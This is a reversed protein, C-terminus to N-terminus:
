LLDRVRALQFICTTRMGYTVEHMYTTSHSPLGKSSHVRSVSFSHWYTGTTAVIQWTLQCPVQTAWYGLKEGTGVRRQLQSSDSCLSGLDQKEDLIRLTHEQVVGDADRPFKNSM